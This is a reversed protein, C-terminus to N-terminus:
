GHVQPVRSTSVHRSGFDLPPVPMHSCHHSSFISILFSGSPKGKATM